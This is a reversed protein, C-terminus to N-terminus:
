WPALIEPERFRVFRVQVPKSERPLGDELPLLLPEDDVVPFDGGAVVV